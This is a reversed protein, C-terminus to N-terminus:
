FDKLVYLCVGFGLTYAISYKLNYITGCKRLHFVEISQMIIHLDIEYKFILQCTESLQINGDLKIYPLHHSSVHESISIVSSHTRSEYLCSEYM